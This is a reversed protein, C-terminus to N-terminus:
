ISFIAKAGPPRRQPSGPAFFNMEFFNSVRPANAIGARTQSRAESPKSRSPGDTYALRPNDSQSLDGGSETRYKM